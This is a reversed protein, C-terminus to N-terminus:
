PKAKEILNIEEPTLKVFLAYVATNIQHELGNIIQTYDQWKKTNDKLYKEWDDQQAPPPLALHTMEEM